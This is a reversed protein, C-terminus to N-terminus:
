PCRLQLVSTSTTSRHQYVAQKFTPSQYMILLNNLMKDTLLDFQSYYQYTQFHNPVHKKSVYINLSITRVSCNQIFIIYQNHYSNWRFTLQKSFSAKFTHTHTHQKYEDVFQINSRYIFPSKWYHCNTILPRQKSWKFSAIWVNVNPPNIQHHQQHLIYHQQQNTIAM